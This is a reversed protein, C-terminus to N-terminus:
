RPFGAYWTSAAMCIMPSTITGPLSKKMPISSFSYRAFTICTYCPRRRGATQGTWFISLSTTLNKSHPERIKIRLKTLKMLEEGVPCFSLSESLPSVSVLLVALAQALFLARPDNHSIFTLITCKEKTRTQSHAMSNHYFSYLSLLLKSWPLRVRYYSMSCRRRNKRTMLAPAGSRRLLVTRTKKVSLGSRLNLNTRHCM